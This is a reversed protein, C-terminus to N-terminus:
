NISELCFCIGATAIVALACPRYCNFVSSDAPGDLREARRGAYQVGVCGDGGGAGPLGGHAARRVSPQARRQADRGLQVDAGARGAGSFEADIGGSDRGGACDDGAGAGASYYEAAFAAVFDARAFSGAFAGRAVYDMEKAKLVQARALRAYGAWGTITLAIIVNGLGPGLFAAFAIALLIGPFSLFANILVINVVGDFWGGFYGALSGLMLDSSGRALCWPFAVSMSVRAGYIVRSLVDRGLEDTGM